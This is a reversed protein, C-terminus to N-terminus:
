CAPRDAADSASIYRRLATASSASALVDALTEARAKRSMAALQASWPEPPSRLPVEALYRSLTAEVELSNELAAVHRVGAALMARGTDGAPDALGLIPRRARLYEYLKAPVQENCNAGQMVLLGDAALMEGLAERYPVVPLVEILDETGTAAAFQRLLAGHVPERFRVRLTQPDVRGEKRMRGLSEFLARPDRESPYVIGSHLLTFRGPNLPGGEHEREAAVFSEEDYGNEILAFRERPLVPYRGEYVARAGPTVFVARSAEHLVAREIREFSRWTRPDAPYGDQVMPDRFDVVLPLGSLRHLRRALLHASAIPYTSWIVDPRYRRILRLGAPVAGLSWTSWRDPRALFNPYRGRWGLHRGTDLAFAREVVTDPPVDALLDTAVKEYARPHASLVLPQWGLAPLHQVFRLTRQLGSSGTMPPFHFAIMLVRRPASSPQALTPM